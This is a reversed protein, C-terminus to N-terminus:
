EVDRGSLMEGQKTHPAIQDRLHSVLETQQTNVVDHDTVMDWDHPHKNNRVMRDDKYKQCVSDNDQKTEKEIVAMVIAMYIVTVVTSVPSPPPTLFFM